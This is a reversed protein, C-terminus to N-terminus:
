DDDGDGQTVVARNRLQRVRTGERGYFVVGLAPVKSLILLAAGIIIMLVILAGVLTLDGWWSSTVFTDTPCDLNGM